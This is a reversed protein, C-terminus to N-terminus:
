NGSLVIRIVPETMLLHNHRYLPIHNNLGNSKNFFCRSSLLHQLLATINITFPPFEFAVVQMIITSYDTVAIELGSSM